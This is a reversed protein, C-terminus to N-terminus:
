LNSLTSYLLSRKLEYRLRGLHEDPSCLFVAFRNQPLHQIVTMSTSSILIQEKLEGLGTDAATHEVIRVLTALEAGLGPLDLEPAASASDLLKGGPGLILFARVGPLVERLSSLVAQCRVQRDPQGKTTERSRRPWLM